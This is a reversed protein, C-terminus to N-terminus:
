PKITEASDRLKEVRRFIMHSIGYQFALLAVGGALILAWIMGPTVEFPLGLMQKIQSGITAERLALMATCICFFLLLAFSFWQVTRAKKRRDQADTSRLMGGKAAAYACAIGVLSNFVPFGMFFGYIMISYFLAVAFLAPLPLYFLRFVFKRLVTFDLVLGIIFGAGAIYAVSSEAIFPLSGWWGALMLAVPAILGLVVTSFFRGFRGM